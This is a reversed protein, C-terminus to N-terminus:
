ENEGGKIKEFGYILAIGDLIKFMNKYSSYDGKLAKSLCTLPNNLAGEPINTHLHIKEQLEQELSSILIEYKQGSKGGASKVRRYQCSKRQCRKILRSSSIGTIKSITKIDLFQATNNM